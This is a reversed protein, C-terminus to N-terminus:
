SLGSNHIIGLTGGARTDRFATFELVAHVAKTGVNIEVAGTCLCTPWGRSYTTTKACDIDVGLYESDGLLLMGITAATITGENGVNQALTRIRAKCAEFISKEFKTLTMRIFALQGLFQWDIPPGEDGGHEDGHVESYFPEESYEVGNITYGFAVLADGSVHHKISVTTLGPVQVIPAM